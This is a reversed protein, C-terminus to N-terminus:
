ACASRLVAHMEVAERKQIDNWVFVRDPRVRILGKNTLNDWSAVCLGSPIGLARASRFWDVQESGINVLPTAILVDPKQTRLFEDFANSRPVVEELRVFVWVLLDSLWAWKVRLLRTFLWHALRGRLGARSRLRKDIKYAVRERLLPADAYRPHLFRAFDALMRIM